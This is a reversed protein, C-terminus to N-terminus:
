VSIDEEPGILSPLLSRSCTGQPGRDQQELGEPLRLMKYRLKDELLSLQNALLSLYIFTAVLCIVFLPM